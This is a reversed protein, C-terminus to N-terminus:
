AAVAENLNMQRLVVQPTAYAGHSTMLVAGGDHCHADILQNVLAIGALDLNAYPEDLLWLRAPHLSLRALALRRNQGASLNRAQSDEFGGLGVAALASELDTESADVWPAVVYRLNELCSLEPKHGSKHGLYALYGASDGSRDAVPGQYEGSSPALLGALIRLLTTKGAGNDGRMLLAEGASVSFSLPGFIREQNRYFSLQRVTLLAPDTAHLQTM